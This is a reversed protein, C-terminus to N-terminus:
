TEVAFAEPDVDWNTWRIAARASTLNPPVRLAHIHGTSPCTMKLLHMREIDARADIRLLTYERWADLELTQLEQCIRDYGIKEILVKRVEANKESLLWEAKWESLHTWYQRPLLVDFCHVELQPNPHDALASLDQIPNNRVFLSQLKQLQGIESPLHTLRNDRVYLGQLNQLQGIEPPLHTLRNNRVVLWQLKQLQGIEPPLETLRNDDVRLQQLNQLQGIEPPLETLYNQYMSLIQLNQLQGIELPLETLYNQCVFLHQLNQLQGIESPLETLKYGFNLHLAGSNPHDLIYRRIDEQTKM